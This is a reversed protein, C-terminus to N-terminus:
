MRSIPLSWNKGFAFLQQSINEIDLKQLNFSSFCDFILQVFLIFM